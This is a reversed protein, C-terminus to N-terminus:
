LMTFDLITCYLTTISKVKRFAHVTLTQVWDKLQAEGARTIMTVILLM